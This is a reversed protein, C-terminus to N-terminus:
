GGPLTTDPLTLNPLTVEPLTVTTTVPIEIIITIDVGGVGSEHGATTSSPPGHSTTTVEPTISGTTTPSATITVKETSTTTTVLESHLGESVPVSLLAGGIILGLATLTVVM